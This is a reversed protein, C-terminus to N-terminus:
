FSRCFNNLIAFKRNYKCMTRKRIHFIEHTEFTFAVEIESRFKSDDQRGSEKSIHKNAKIIQQLYLLKRSATAFADCCDFQVREM